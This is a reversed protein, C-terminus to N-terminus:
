SVWRKGAVCDCISLRVRWREVIGLRADTNNLAEVARRVQQSKTGTTLDKASRIALPKTPRREFWGVLGTGFCDGCSRLAAASIDVIM